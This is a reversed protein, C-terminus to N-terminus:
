HQEFLARLRAYEEDIQRRSEPCRQFYHEQIPALLFLDMLMKIRSLAVYDGAFFPGGPEVVAGHLATIGQSSHITRAHAPALPVQWRFFHTGPIPFRGPVATIPILRQMTSSVSHKNVVLPHDSNDEGDIQVLFIALERPGKSSFHTPFRKRSSPVPKGEADFDEPPGSGGYLIYRITGMCGSYLGLEPCVNTTLGM